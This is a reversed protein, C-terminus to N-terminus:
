RQSLCFLLFTKMAQINFIIFLFLGRETKAQRKFTNLPPGAERERETNHLDFLLLPIPHRTKDFVHRDFGNPPILVASVPLHHCFVISLSCLSLSAPPITCVCVCVSLCACIAVCESVCVCVPPDSHIDCVQSLAAEGGRTQLQMAMSNSIIACVCVCKCVSPLCECIKGDM